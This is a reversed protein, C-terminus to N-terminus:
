YQKVIAYDSLRKLEGEFISDTQEGALEHLEKSELWFSIGADYIKVSTATHSKRMEEMEFPTFVRKVPIVERGTALDKNIM